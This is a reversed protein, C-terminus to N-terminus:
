LLTRCVAMEGEYAFFLEFSVGPAPYPSILGGCRGKSIRCTTVSYVQRSIGILEELAMSGMGEGGLGELREVQDALCAQYALVSQELLAMGKVCDEPSVDHSECYAEVQAFSEELGLSYHRVEESSAAWGFSPVLLGLGIFGRVFYGRM